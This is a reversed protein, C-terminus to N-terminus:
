HGKCRVKVGLMSRLGMGRGLDESRLDEERLSGRGRTVVNSIRKCGPGKGELTM